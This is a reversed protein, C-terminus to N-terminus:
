VPKVKKGKSNAYIFCPLPGKGKIYPIETSLSRKTIISLDFAAWVGTWLGVMLGKGYSSICHVTASSVKGSISLLWGQEKFSFASGSNCGAKRWILIFIPSRHIIDFLKERM